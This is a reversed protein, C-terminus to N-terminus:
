VILNFCINTMVKSKRLRWQLSSEEGNHVTIGNVSISMLCVRLRALRYVDKVLDNRKEEVHSVNDMSLTSLVDAVLNVKGYHYHVIM